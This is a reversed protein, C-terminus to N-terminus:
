FVMQSIIQGIGKRFSFFLDGLVNFSIWIQIAHSGRCCGSSHVLLPYGPYVNSVAPHVQQMIIFDLLDGPIM